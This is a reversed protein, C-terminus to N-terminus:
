GRKALEGASGANASPGAPRHTKAGSPSGGSITWREVLLFCLLGVVMCAAVAPIVPWFVPSKEGGQVVARYVELVPRHTAYLSYSFIGIGAFRKAPWSQWIRSETRTVSLWVLIAFPIALTTYELPALNLRGRPLFYVALTAAASLGTLTALTRWSFRWDRTEAEAVYLGTTWCFWYPLFVTATSGLAALAAWSAASVLLTMGLVALPSWRRLLLFLLPYIAYFHLEVALTWLPGNSGFSPVLINQVSALNGLFCTAGDDIDAFYKPARPRSVSDLAATLVLAALLVPYIRVLRRRVYEPLDLRYAPDRSRRRAHPRHICYGSLVFFLPVGAWGYRFPFTLIAGLMDGDIAFGSTKLRSSLGAWVVERAHYVLVAFAAIGRLADISIVRDAGPKM